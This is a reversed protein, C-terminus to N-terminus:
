VVFWSGDRGEEVARMLGKCGKETRSVLAWCGCDMELIAKEFKKAGFCAGSLGEEIAESVCYMWSADTETPQVTETSVNASVEVGVRGASM